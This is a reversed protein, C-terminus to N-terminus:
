ERPPEPRCAGAAARLSSPTPQRCPRRGASPAPARRRTSAARTTGDLRVIAAARGAAVLRLTTAGDRSPPMSPPTPRPGLPALARGRRRRARRALARWGADLPSSTAAPRRRSWRAPEAAIAALVRAPHADRAPGLPTPVRRCDPARASRSPAFPAAHRRRRRRRRAVAQRMRNACTASPTARHQDRPAGAATPATAAASTEKRPATASEAPAAAPARRRSGDAQSRPRRTGARRRGRPPAVGRGATCRDLRPRTRRANSSIPPARDVPDSTAEQQADNTAAADLPRARRDRKVSRARGLFRRRHKTRGSRDRPAQKRRWCTSAARPGLPLPSARAQCRRTSAQEPASRQRRAVAGSTPLAGNAAENLPLADLTSTATETVTAPSAAAPASSTSALSPEAPARDSALAPPRAMAEDM